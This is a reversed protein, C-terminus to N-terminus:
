SCLRKRGKRRRRNLVNRGDKTGVRALFGHKRKMRILSPQFTRKISFVNENLLGTNPSLHQNIIVSQSNLDHNIENTIVDPVLPTSYSIKTYQKLINIQWHKNVGMKNSLAKKMITLPPEFKDITQQSNFANTNIIQKLSYTVMNLTFSKKNLYQIIQLM